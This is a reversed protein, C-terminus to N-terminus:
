EYIYKYLDFDRPLLLEKEGGGIYAYNTGKPIKFRYISGGEKKFINSKYPDLSTSKYAIDGNLDSLNDVSRYVILDKTLKSKEIASDILSIVKDLKSDGTSKFRLYPNIKKYEFSVYTDLADAEKSNFNQKLDNAKSVVENESQQILKSQINRSKTKFKNSKLLLFLQEEKENAFEEFLFLNEM